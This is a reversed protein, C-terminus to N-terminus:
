LGSKIWQRIAIVVIPMDNPDNRGAKIGAKAEAEFEDIPGVMRSVHGTRAQQLKQVRRLLAKISRM